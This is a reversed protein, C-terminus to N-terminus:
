QGLDAGGDAAHWRGAVAGAEVYREHEIEAGILRQNDPKGGLDIIWRFLV